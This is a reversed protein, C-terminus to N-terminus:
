LRAGITFSLIEKTGFPHSSWAITPTDILLDIVGFRAVLGARSGALLYYESGATGHAGTTVDPEGGGRIKPGGEVRVPTLSVGLPGLCYWRVGLALNGTFYASEGSTRRVGGALLVAPTLPHRRGWRDSDWTLEAGVMGLGYTRGDIAMAPGTTPSIGVLLGTTTKRGHLQDYPAPPPVWADDRREPREGRAILTDGTVARPSSLGYTFGIGVSWHVGPQVWNVALPGELSLMTGGGLEYQFQLLRTLLEFDGGSSGYVVRLEAPTLGVASKLGVPLVLDLGLGVIGASGGAKRYQYGLSGRLAYVFPNLEESFRLVSGRAIAEYTWPTVVRLDLGLFAYRGPTTEAPQRVACQEGECPHVPSFWRAQYARWQPSREPHTDRESAALQALRLERVLVLLEVIAQRARDGEPSLCAYPVEYPQDTLEECRRPAGELVYTKDRHDSWRHYAGPPITRARETPLGALREIPKWVRLYAIADETREAHAGSFSDEIAHMLEYIGFGNRRPAPGGVVVVQRLLLGLLDNCRVIAGMALARPISTGPLPDSVADRLTGMYHFCQGADSFQRRFFLDPRDSEPQPWFLLPNDGRADHCEEDARGFCFPADLAGDNILDRLVEPRAPMGHGEVLTRYALAEIVAHGKTDFARAQTAVAAVAVLALRALQRRSRRAL